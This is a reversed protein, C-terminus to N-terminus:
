IGVVCVCVFERNTRSSQFSSARHKRIIQISHVATYAHALFHVCMAVKHFFGTTELIFECPTVKVKKFIIRPSKVTSQTELQECVLSVGTSLGLFFKAFLCQRHLSSVSYITHAEKGM